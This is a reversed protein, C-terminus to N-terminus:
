RVIFLGHILGNADGRLRSWGVRWHACFAGDCGAACQLAMLDVFIDCGHTLICRPSPQRTALREFHNSSVECVGQWDKSFLLTVDAECEALDGAACVRGHDSQAFM